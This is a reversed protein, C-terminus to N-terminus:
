AAVRAGVFFIYFYPFIRFSNYVLLKSNFMVM